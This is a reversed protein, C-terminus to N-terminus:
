YPVELITAAIHRIGGNCKIVDSANNFYYVSIVKGEPLLATRPYGLDPSGGDDRLIIERGWTEGRDESIKARIGYPPMRYGYTCLLRGDKLVLLSAPAGWENVRSLFRWTLGGDDSAYIDTWHFRWDPWLNRLAVVIRGDPLIAPHPCIKAPDSFPPTVYALFSWNAAGDTSALIMPRGEPEEIKNGRQFEDWRTGQVFWLLVGDPRLMYSPRAQITEFVPDYLLHPGEWTHGRNRTIFYATPGRENGLPTEVAMAVDPNSFDAPKPKPLPSSDPLYHLVKARLQAKSEVIVRLEEMPWTRGADKSRMTVHQGDGLQIQGHKVDKLDRYLCRNRNFGVLLESNGFNWFGGNFPWGGYEDNRRYIVIHEIEEPRVPKEYKAM